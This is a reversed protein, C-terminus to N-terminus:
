GLKALEHDNFDLLSNLQIDALAYRKDNRNHHEPVVVVKMRAAKAATMGTVSDEFAVCELPSAGLEQAASLYVAPHPKGYPEFEASIIAQFYPKIDLYNLVSSIISMNSSSALGMKFGREKFFDLIYHLGEMPQGQAMIKHTVSEIIESTVQETSKANWKFHNHWYEVVEKTRLGTTRSTLEPTLSVNLTDFVERIALGWLPESDVLLGDMDFIVTNIMYSDKKNAGCLYPPKRAFHKWM